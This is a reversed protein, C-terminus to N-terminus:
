EADEQARLIDDFAKLYNRYAEVRNEIVSAPLREFSVPTGDEVRYTQGLEKLSTWQAYAGSTYLKNMKIQRFTNTESVVPLTAPGPPAENIFNYESVAPGPALTEVPPMEFEFYGKSALHAAPFEPWSDAVVLTGPNDLDGIVVYQHDFDSAKVIHISSTRPQSALISFTVKSNESCNGGKIEIAKRAAEAITLKATFGGEELNLERLGKIKAIASGGKEWMSPLQNGSLPILEKTRCIARQAMKLDAMIPPSVEIPEDSTVVDSSLLEGYSLLDALEPSPTVANERVSRLLAQYEDTRGTRELNRANIALNRESEPLPILGDRTFMQEILPTFQEDSMLKELDPLAEISQVINANAQADEATNADYLAQWLSSFYEESYNDKILKLGRLYDYKAYSSVSSDFAGAVLSPYLVGIAQLVVAEGEGTPAGGRLRMVQPDFTLPDLVPLDSLVKLLRYPKLARNRIAEKLQRGQGIHINLANREADPLAQLISSYFDSGANLANGEDDYAQFTLDEREVITRRIAADEKGISDLLAGGLEFRHVDIRVDPNWGPLNELSHLALRRTDPNDVSKLHLGEYARASRVDRLAWRALNELRDSLKARAIDQLEEPSAIALLEQAVTGPLDPVRDQINRVLASKASRANELQRYRAEFLGTRRNKALKALELRLQRANVEAALVPAGFENNMLTKTEAQDLHALLTKLLDGDILRDKRIRVPSADARGIVELVQGDAGVLEIARGPWVGDLLRFQFAPDAKLYDQPHESGIQEIFTQIDHDIRFRTVTDSLLPLAREKDVYMRRIANVDSRSVTRIDGYADALGKMSQGLRAMLTDDDWLHPQEGEIVFAGEGNSEVLPQYADPRVPHQVRHKGTQPDKNLEFYRTDLNLIPKGEHRHLWQDDPKSDASLMLDRQYAELNQGWLRKDGNALTVPKSGEIFSSLKPLVVESGLKMGAGFTGLQILSEAFGILHEAGELYVGEALDVVGEVVESVLQYVMYAMMAEGLFPVFPTVVLLAANLVDSLMKELNDFWAWREMRDADATSIVMERADNLIKNQQVQYLYVWLDGNFRTESDEEFKLTGFRLRPNDVATERWVPLDVGWEKEHRTIVVLKSNLEAFFHGRQQHAVFRSFFQQYSRRNPFGERTPAQGADRLQRTLELAFEGLSAYEKLPHDPDNPVYAILRRGAGAADLDGAILVIGHLRTDLMTLHYYRVPIGELTLGKVGELIGKMVRYGNASIDKRMLAWDMAANLAAKQSKIIRHQVVGKALGDSPRLYSELHEKYRAGIDLERCVAKFQEISVKNRIDLIEFRGLEDPRSIFQSDSLLVENLAFNHLAADLMSVTRSSVGGTINHVWPSLKAPSFLKLYTNRVDIDVGYQQKLAQHLLPEAFAYVDQLEGLMRDVHNQAEWSAVMTKKLRSHLASSAEKSWQPIGSMGLKLARVRELSADTVWTPLAEKIFEHHISKEQTTLVSPVRVLVSYGM